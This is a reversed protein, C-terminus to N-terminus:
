RFIAVKSAVPLYKPLMAMMWKYRLVNGEKEMILINREGKMVSMAVLLHQM